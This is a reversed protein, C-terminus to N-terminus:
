AFKGMWSFIFLLAFELLPALSEMNFDNQPVKFKLPPAPTERAKLSILSHQRMDDTDTKTM